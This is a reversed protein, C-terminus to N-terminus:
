PHLTGAHHTLQIGRVKGNIFLRTEIKGISAMKFQHSVTATNIQHYARSATNLSSFLKIYYFTFTVVNNNLYRLKGSHGGNVTAQIPLPVQSVWPLYAVQTRCLRKRSAHPQILPGM